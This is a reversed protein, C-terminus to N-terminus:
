FSQHEEIYKSEFLVLGLLYRQTGREMRMCGDMYFQLALDGNNLGLLTNQGMNINHNPWLFWLYFDTHGVSRYYTNSHVDCHSFAGVLIQHLLTFFVFFPELYKSVLFTWLSQQVESLQIQQHCPLRFTETFTKDTLQWSFLMFCSILSSYASAIDWKCM